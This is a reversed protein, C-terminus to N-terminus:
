WPIPKRHRFFGGTPGDDPLTALWLIGDVGEEPTLEANEGGMDTRVWGPCASNVKVQTEKLEDAFIRTLANLATKSIRYGTCCGNMDSLQGMGSSVNVVRGYGNMLPILQQCLFLPAYTNTEMATRLIDLGTDFVSSSKGTAPSPDPFIGANNILIDLRGTQERIHDVLKRISEPDTVDLPHYRFDHGSSSLRQVTEKGKDQDRSTLFVTLGLAGLQRCTELGLGRNAGTVVAVKLESM